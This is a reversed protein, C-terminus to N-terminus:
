AHGAEMQNRRPSIALPHVRFKQRLVDEVESWKYRTKGGVKYYPLHGKRSWVGITRAAMGLRQAVQEKSIYLEIDQAPIALSQTAAIPTNMANAKQTEITRPPADTARKQGHSTTIVANKKM